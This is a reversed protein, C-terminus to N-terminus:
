KIRRVWLTLFISTQKDWVLLTRCWWMQSALRFAQIISKTFSACRQSRYALDSTSITVQSLVLISNRWASYSRVATQLSSVWLSRSSVPILSEIRTISHVTSTKFIRQNAFRAVLVCQRCRNETEFEKGKCYRAYYYQNGCPKSFTHFHFSLLTIATKM